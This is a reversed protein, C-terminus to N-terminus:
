SLIRNKEAISKKYMICAGYPEIKKTFHKQTSFFNSWIYKTKPYHVGCVLDLNKNEIFPGLMNASYHKDLITGADVNM